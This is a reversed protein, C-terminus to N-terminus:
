KQKEWYKMGSDPIFFTRIFGDSSLVLFYNKDKDYFLSDGDESTKHLVSKSKSAILKNALDLYQEKTISGFESGHKRFHEDYRAENRFTYRKAAKATVTVTCKLPTKGHKATIVAKGEKKATVKGKTVAAVKSNGSSWTISDTARDVFLQYTEGVALTM